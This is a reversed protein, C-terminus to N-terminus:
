ISQRNSHDRVCFPGESSLKTCEVPSVIIIRRGRFYSLEGCCFLDFPLIMWTSEGIMGGQEQVIQGLDRFIENLEHIGGEIERIEAEREAILAEQFELEAQTPGKSVQVQEQVQQQQQDGEPFASSNPRSSVDVLPAWSQAELDSSLTVRRLNFILKTELKRRM